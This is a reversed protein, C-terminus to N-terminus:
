PCPARCPGDAARPGWAGATRGLRARAPGSGWARACPLCGPPRAHHVVYLPRRARGVPPEQAALAGPEALHGLHAQVHGARSRSLWRPRCFTSRTPCFAGASREHLSTISPMARCPFPSRCTTPSRGAIGQQDRHLEPAAMDIGPMISVMSFRPMFSRVTSPSAAELPPRNAHSERGCTRAATRCPPRQAARRLTRRPARPRWSFPLAHLSSARVRRPRGQPAYDSCYMRTMYPRWPLFNGDSGRSCSSSAMFATKSLQDPWLATTYLFIFM